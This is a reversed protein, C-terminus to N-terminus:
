LDGELDRIVSHDERDILRERFAIEILDRFTKDPWQPEGLDGKARYMQYGSLDRDWVMKVWVKKAEEATQLGTEAARRGLENDARPLKAPWLFPTGNKNICLFLRVKRLEESLVHQVSPHVLYTDRSMGTDHELILMDTAYEPHVRFFETRKPKKVPVATLVKEVDIDAQAGVRLTEPNFPDVPERAMAGNDEYAPDQEPENGKHAM